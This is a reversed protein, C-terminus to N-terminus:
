PPIWSTHRRVTTPARLGRWPVFPPAGDWVVAASARPLLARLGEDDPTARLARLAAEVADAARGARALAHALRALDAPDTSRLLRRLEDDAM